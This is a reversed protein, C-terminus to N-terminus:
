RAWELGAYDDVTEAWGQVKVLLSIRDHSFASRAEHLASEVTKTFDPQQDHPAPELGAPMCEALSFKRNRRLWFALVACSGDRYWSGELYRGKTDERSYFQANTTPTARRRLMGVVLDAVEEGTRGELAALVKAKCEERTM